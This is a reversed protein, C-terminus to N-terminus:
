NKSCLKQNQNNIYLFHTVIFNLISGNYCLRWYEGDYYADTDSYNVKVKALLPIRKLNESSAEMWEM